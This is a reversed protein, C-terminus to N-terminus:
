LRPVGALLAAVMATQRDRPLRRIFTFPRPPEIALLRRVAARVLLRGEEPACAANLGDCLLERCRLCWCPCGKM